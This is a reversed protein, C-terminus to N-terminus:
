LIMDNEALILAAKLDSITGLDTSLSQPIFIKYYSSGDLGTELKFNLFINKLAGDFTYEYGIDWPYIHGSKVPLLINLAIFLYLLIQKIM